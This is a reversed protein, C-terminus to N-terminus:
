YVFKCNASNCNANMTLVYHQFMSTFLGYVLLPSTFISTLISFFDSPSPYVCIFEVVMPFTSTCITKWGICHMSSAESILSIMQFMKLVILLCIVSYGCLLIACGLVVVAICWVLLISAKLSLSSRLTWLCPPCIVIQFYICFSFPLFCLIFFSQLWLFHLSAYPKYGICHMSSCPQQVLSIM